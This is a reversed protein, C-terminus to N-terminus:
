LIPVHWKLWGEIWTSAAALNKVNFFLHFCDVCLCTHQIWVQLWVESQMERITHFCFIHWKRCAHTTPVPYKWFMSLSLCTALHWRFFGIVLSTHRPWPMIIPHVHSAGDMVQFNNWHISVREFLQLHLNNHSSSHQFSWHRVSPTLLYLFLDWQWKM